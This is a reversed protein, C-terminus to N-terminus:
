HGYVARQAIQQADDKFLGLDIATSTPMKEIEAVTRAYAARKAIRSQLEALLMTM